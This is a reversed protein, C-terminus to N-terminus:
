PSRKLLRWPPLPLLCWSEELEYCAYFFTNVAEALRIGEKYSFLLRVYFGQVLACCAVMTWEVCEAWVELAGEWRYM